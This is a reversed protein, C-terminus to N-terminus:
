RGEKHERLQELIKEIRQLRDQLALFSKLSYALAFALCGLILRLISRTEIGKAYYVESVAIFFLGTATLLLPVGWRALFFVTTMGPKQEVKNNKKMTSNM